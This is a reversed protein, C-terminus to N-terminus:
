GQEVFIFCMERGGEREREEFESSLAPASRCAAWTETWGHGQAGEKEKGGGREVDEETEGFGAMQWKEDTISLGGGGGGKRIRWM